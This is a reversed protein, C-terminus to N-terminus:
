PGYHKMSKRIREMQAHSTTHKNRIQKVETALERKLHCINMYQLARVRIQKGDKNETYLPGDKKQEMAAIALMQYFDAPDQSENQNKREQSHPHIDDNEIELAFYSSHLTGLVSQPVLVYCVSSADLFSMIFLVTICLTMTHLEERVLEIQHFGLYLNQYWSIFTYMGKGYIGTELDVENRPRHAPM